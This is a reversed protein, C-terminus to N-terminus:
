NVFTYHDNIDKIDVVTFDHHMTDLLYPALIYSTGNNCEKFFIGSAFSNDDNCPPFLMLRPDVTLDSFSCGAINLCRMVISQVRMDHIFVDSILPLYEYDEDIPPLSYLFLIEPFMNYDQGVGHMMCRQKGSLEKQM